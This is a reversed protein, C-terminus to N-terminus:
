VCICISESEFTSEYLCVGRGVSRSIFLDILPYGVISGYRVKEHMRIGVNM